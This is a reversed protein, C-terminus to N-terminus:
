RLGTEMKMMNWQIPKLLKIMKIMFHQRLRMEMKMMNQQIIHNYNEVKMM